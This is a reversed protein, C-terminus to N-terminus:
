SPKSSKPPTPPEDDLLAQLLLGDYAQTFLTVHVPDATFLRAFAALSEPRPRPGSRGACAGVFTITITITFPFTLTFARM